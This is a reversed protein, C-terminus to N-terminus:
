IWSFNDQPVVEPAHDAEVRALVLAQLVVDGADADGLLMEGDDQKCRRSPTLLFFGWTAEAIHPERNSRVNKCTNSGLFASTRVSM